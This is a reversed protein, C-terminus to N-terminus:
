FNQKRGPWYLGGFMEAYGGAMSGVNLTVNTTLTYFEYLQIANTPLNVNTYTCLVGNTYFWATGNGIEYVLRVPNNVTANTLGFGTDMYASVNNTRTVAILNNTSQGSIQGVTLNTTPDYIFGVFGSYSVMTNPPTTGIGWLVNTFTVAGFVTGGFLWNTATTTVNQSSSDTLIAYSGNNTAVTQPSYRFGTAGYLFTISYANNAGGNASNVYFQNAGPLQKIAQCSLNGRGGTFGAEFLNAIYQNTTNAAICNETLTRWYHGDWTAMTGPGFGTMADSVWVTYIGNTPGGAPLTAVTYVPTTNTIVSGNGLSLTALTSNTSLKYAGAADYASPATYAAAGLLNTAANVAATATNTTWTLVTNSSVTSVTGLTPLGSLSSYTVGTLASGNGTSLQALTGNTALRWQGIPDFTANAWVYITNTALSLNATTDLGARATLPPVYVYDGQNWGAPLNTWQSASSWNTLNASTEYSYQYAYTGFTQPQTKVWYWTGGYNFVCSGETNVDGNTALVHFGVQYNTSVYEKVTDFYYYLGNTYVMVPDSESGAGEGGGFGAGTTLNMGRKKVLQLSPVGNTLAFTADCITNSGDFHPEYLLVHLGNTADVFWEPGWSPWPGVGIPNWTAGDASWALGVGNTDTDLFSRNYTLLFVNSYLCVSPDRLGPADNPATFVDAYVAWANNTALAFPSAGAYEFLANPGNGFTVYQWYGATQQLALAGAITPIPVANTLQATPINGVLQATSVPSNSTLVNGGGGSNLSAFTGVPGIITNSAQLWNLNQSTVPSLSGAAYWTVLSANTSFTDAYYLNTGTGFAPFFDIELLHTTLNYGNPNNTQGGGQIYIGGATGSQVCNANNIDTWDWNTYTGNVTLNSYNFSSGTLVVSTWNTTPTLVAAAKAASLAIQFATSNTLYVRYRNTGIMVTGYAAGTDNTPGYTLSGEPLVGSNPLLSSVLLSNLNSGNGAFSSTGNTLLWTCLNTVQNPTVGSLVGLINTPVSAWQTLNTPWYAFVSSLAAYYGANSNILSTFAYTNTDNPVTLIFPKPFGQAYAVWQGAILNSATVSLNSCSMYLNTPAGFALANGYVVPQQLQTLTVNAQRPNGFPDTFTFVVNSALASLGVALFLITLLNKM